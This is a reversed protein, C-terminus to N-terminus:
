SYKRRNILAIMAFLIIALLLIIIAIAIGMTLTSTPTVEFSWSNSWQGSTGSNNTAKVRWFYTGAAPLDSSTLNFTTSKIQDQTFVASSFGANNSVQLSYTLDPQEDPDSWNLATVTTNGPGQKNGGSSNNGGINSFAGLFLDIVSTSSEIRAGPGPFLLQPANPTISVYTHTAQAVAGKSGTATVQHDKGAKVPFQFNMTFSGKADTSGTAGTNVKDYGITVSESANFGYGEVKIERSGYM